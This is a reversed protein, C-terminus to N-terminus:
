YERDATLMTATESYEKFSYYGQNNKPGWSNLVTGLVRTGHQTLRQSAYLASEPTTRGARLILIVGDALRGLVRADALYIMPAADILVMDFETRLRGLLTAMRPSYFLPLTTGISAGGPLLFLGPIKTEHVLQALPVTELPTDASLVETLGTTAPVGFVRHLRPRHLDGDLLLVKRGIEAMAIGLNSTVTTKGDGSSPSTVVVVRPADENPGPLLISTMTARVCEALVSPKRKWAALEPCDVLLSDQALGSPSALMPPNARKNNSQSHLRGLLNEYARVMPSVERSPQIEALPIVGLEPLNLYVQADGPAQIKNDFHERVMIFGLGLFVGSFLGVASNMPFSPKYPRSPPKAPDVVLVNSSRMASALEAQKVRQLMVEYLQRTSDVDRKLTDYHIAKGSQDAVIKEQEAYAENLFKERRLEEAYENEVRRLVLARQNKVASQLDDIQAQVRQVKYHAPTLTASLEVLQQQLDTLKRLDERLTPDDLMEPLSEAPKNRAEEFKSQKAVRDAQAQSLKNELEKLRIEAVNDKEATFMLGSTSAYDQLQAESQELKAKMEALHSTLWEATGETSKWHEEQNAQVFESVLINALDAALMPDPSEYLVEVLRTTGVARVTLNAQVQRIMREREPVPSRSLMRRARSALAQWGSAPRAQLKLKDIVREILSESQMIQTQTDLYATATTSGEAASNAPDVSKQDIPNEDFDQIELLTRARYVPTQVLSLLVAAALAVLAFCLLTTKHRILIHWYEALSVYSPAAVVARLPEVCGQLAPHLKAVEGLESRIRHAKEIAFDSSEM